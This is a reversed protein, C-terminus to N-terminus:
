LHFLRRAGGAHGPVSRSGHARGEPRLRTRLRHRSAGGRAVAITEPLPGTRSSRVPSASRLHEAAGARALSPEGRKGKACPDRSRDKQQQRGNQVPGQRSSLDSALRADSLGHQHERVKGASLRERSATAAKM